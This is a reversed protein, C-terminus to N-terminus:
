HGGNGQRPVPSPGAAGDPLPEAEAFERVASTRSVVRGRHVVVRSHGSTLAAELTDGRVALLEAAFGADVRVEPLGMLARARASVAEYAEAPTFAGSSALLFVAELPDARGVPNAADRLGGSGAAVLVGAERLARAVRPTRPTPRAAPEGSCTGNQPLCVVSVGAAALREAGANGGAGLGTRAGGGMGGAGGAAPEAPLALRGLPGLAVRPRLPGLAAATRALRVPDSGDTHLDVACGFEGAVCLLEEVFGAPDPDLEPCGGIAWAGAKVADRLRARGDAGALGTLVRPMAVIQLELLGSLVQGATLAAELRAMGHVDGIRVHTRQATAGYGLATLAGEVVRRQVAACEAGAGPGALATDLHSHPEAPAPLLLYGRLDLIEAPDHAPLSGATGVAEIRPGALRVDVRRGDALLAGRLLLSRAAPSAPGASAAPAASPEASGAGGRGV